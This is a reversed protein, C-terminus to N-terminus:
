KLLAEIDAVIGDGRVSCKNKVVLGNEDILVSHPIGHIDFDKRLQISMKKDAFINITKLDYKEVLALFHSFESEICFNIIKVPKDKFQEVFENEHAFNEFCPKCYSAWFNILVVTDKIESFSFQNSDLDLVTFNPAKAGKPLIEDQNISKYLFNKLVTDSILEIWDPKIMDPSFELFMSLSSAISFDRYPQPLIRATNAFLSDSYKEKLSSNLTDNLPNFSQSSYGYLFAWFSSFGMLDVNEYPVGKVISDVYAFPIHDDIKYMLKRYNLASLKYSAGLVILRKSELDVFWKPLLSKNKALHSQHKQIVMENRKMLEQYTLNFNGTLNVLDMAALNTSYYTGYSKALYTNISDFKGVFNIVSDSIIEARIVSQSASFVRYYYDNIVLTFYSYGQSVVKYNLSDNAFITTDLTQKENIISAYSSIEIRISDSSKNLLILDCTGYLDFSAEVTKIEEKPTCSV